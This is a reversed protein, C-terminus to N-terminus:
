RIYCPNITSMRNSISRESNVNNKAMKTIHEYQPPSNLDFPPWAHPPLSFSFESSLLSMIFAELIAM